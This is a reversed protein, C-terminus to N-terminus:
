SYVLDGEGEVRVEFKSPKHNQSVDNSLKGGSLTYGIAKMFDELQRKNETFIYTQSFRLCNFYYHSIICFASGTLYIIEKLILTNNSSASKRGAM